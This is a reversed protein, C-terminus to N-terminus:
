GWRLKVRNKLERKEFDLFSKKKKTTWVDFILCSSFSLFFFPFELGLLFFKPVNRKHAVPRDAHLRGAYRDDLHDFYWFIRRSAGRRCEVLMADMGIGGAISVLISRSPICLLSALACVLRPLPLSRNFINYICLFFPPLRCALAFSLFINQFFFFSSFFLYFFTKHMKNVAHIM